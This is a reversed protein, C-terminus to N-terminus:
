LATRSLVYTLSTTNRTRSDKELTGLMLCRELFSSYQPISVKQYTFTSEWVKEENEDTWDSRLISQLYLLTDKSVELREKKLEELIETGKNCLSPSFGICGNNEGDVMELPLKIDQLKIEFGERRAFTKCDTEQDSKLLPLELRPVIHKSSTIMQVVTDDVWEFTGERSVSAILLAAEKSATLREDTNIEACLKFQQLHCDDLLGNQYDAFVNLNSAHYPTQLHDCCLGNERAYQLPSTEPEEDSSESQATIDPAPSTSIVEPFQYLFNDIFQPRGVTGPLPTPMYLVLQRLYDAGLKPHPVTHLPSLARLKEPSPHLHHGSSEAGNLTNIGPSSLILKPFCALSRDNCKFLANTDLDPPDSIFKASRHLKDHNVAPHDIPSSICGTSHHLSYDKCQFQETTQLRTPSLVHKRAQLQHFSDDSICSPISTNVGPSTTALDEPQHSYGSFQTEDAADKRPSSTNSQSHKTTHLDWSASIIQHSNDGFPTRDPTEIDPSGFFPRPSHHLSDHPRSQKPADYISDESYQSQETVDLILPAGTLEVIRRFADM